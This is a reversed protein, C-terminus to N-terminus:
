TGPRLEECCQHIWDSELYHRRYGCRRCVVRYCCLTLMMTILKGGLDMSALMESAALM